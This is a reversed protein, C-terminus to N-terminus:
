PSYLTPFMSYHSYKTSTCYLSLCYTLHMLRMAYLKYHYIITTHPLSRTYVFFISLFSCFYTALLCLPQICPHFLRVAHAEISTIYPLPPSAAPTSLLKLTCLVWFLAFSLLFNVSFIHCISFPVVCFRLVAISLMPKTSMHISLRLLSRPCDCYNALM